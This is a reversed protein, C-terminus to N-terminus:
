GDKTPDKAPDKEDPIWYVRARGGAKKTRLQDGVLKNMRNAAAVRTCDLAEGVEVASLPECGDERDEFVGMVREETIRPKEGRETM